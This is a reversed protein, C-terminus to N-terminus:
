LEKGAGRADGAGNACKSARRQPKVDTNRRMVVERIRASQTEDLSPNGASADCTEPEARGAGAPAACSSARWARSPGGQAVITVDEAPLAETDCIARADILAIAEHARCRADHATGYGQFDRHTQLVGMVRKEPPGRCNFTEQQAVPAVGKHKVLRLGPGAPPFASAYAAPPTLAALGERAGALAVSSHTRSSLSWM